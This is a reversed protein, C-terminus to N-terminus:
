GNIASLSIKASGAVSHQPSTCRRQPHHPDLFGMICGSRQHYRSWHPFRTGPVWDCVMDLYEAM